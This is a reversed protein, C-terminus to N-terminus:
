DAMLDIVELEAESAEILEEPEDAEGDESSHMDVHGLRVRSFAGGEWNRSRNASSTRASPRTSKRPAEKEEFDDYEDFDDEFGEYEDDASDDRFSEWGGRKRGVNRAEFDDDVDLWQQPTEEEMDDHKRRFRDFFGSLRSFPSAQEEEVTTEVADKTKKWAGTVEERADALTDEAEDALDDVMKEVRQARRPKYEPKEPAKVFCLKVPLQAHDVGVNSSHM